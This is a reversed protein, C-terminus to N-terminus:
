AALDATPRSVPSALSAPWEPGAQYKEPSAQWAQSEPGARCVLLCRVAYRSLAPRELLAPGVACPYQLLAPHREALEPRTLFCPSRYAESIWMASLLVRRHIPEGAPM